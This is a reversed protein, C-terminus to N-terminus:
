LKPRQQGNTFFFRASKLECSEGDKSGDRSHLRQAPITPPLPLPLPCPICPTDHSPLGNMRRERLPGAKKCGNRSPPVHMEQAAGVSAMCFAAPQSPPDEKQLGNVNQSPNRKASSVEKCMLEPTPSAWRQLAQAAGIANFYEGVGGVERLM